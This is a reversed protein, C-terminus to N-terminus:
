ARNVPHNRAEWTLLDPCGARVWSRLEKLQWRKSGGVWVHRPIRDAESDRRISMESRGLMRAVEKIGILLPQSPNALNRTGSANSM